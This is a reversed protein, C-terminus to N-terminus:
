EGRVRDRAFERCDKTYPVAAELIGKFVKAGQRQRIPAKSVAQDIREIVNDHRVNTDLCNQLFANYRQNQIESTTNHQARLVVGFGALAVACAVGIIAFAALARSYFHRLRTEIRQAHANLEKVLEEHWGPLRRDPFQRREPLEEAFKKLEDTMVIEELLQCFSDSYSCNSCVWIRNGFRFGPKAGCSRCLYLFHPYPKWV